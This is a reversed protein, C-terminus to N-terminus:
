FDNFNNLPSLSSNKKVEDPLTKKLENIAYICISDM